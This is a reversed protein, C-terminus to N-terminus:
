KLAPNHTTNTKAAKFSAILKNAKEIIIKGDSKDYDNEILKESEAIAKEPQDLMLYIVALNFYASYRMKRSPKNDEAYKTKLSDFYEILPQMNSKLDDIPEDAKMTAFLTKVAQIAETQTKGEDSKADLIWLIENDSKARFGYTSNVNSNFRNMSNDAFSRLTQDRIAGKNVYFDKMAASSNDYEPSKYELEGDFNLKFGDTAAAVASASTSDKKIIANKLFRNPAAPAAEIKPTEVPKAVVVPTVPGKVKAYGRTAYKALVFHFDKRSILKGDKDKKEETRIQATAGKEVFDELNLEIQVTGGSEVKKWGDIYIQDNLAAPNVYSQIAGGLKVTSSYTRKEYPVGEKPLIQYKVGFYFRDLDVKQANAGFFSLFLVFLLTKKM